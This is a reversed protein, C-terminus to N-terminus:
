YFPFIDRTIESFQNVQSSSYIIKKIKKFINQLKKQLRAQNPLVALLRRRTTRARAGVALAVRIGVALLARGFYPYTLSRCRVAVVAAAARLFDKLQLAALVSGRWCFCSHM